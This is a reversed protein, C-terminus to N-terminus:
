HQKRQVAAPFKLKTQEVVFPTVTLRECGSVCVYRPEGISCMVDGAFSFFAESQRVTTSMHM